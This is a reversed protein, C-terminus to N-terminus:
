NGSVKIKIENGAELGSVGGGTYKVTYEGTGISYKESLNFVTTVSDHPPVEIYSEPPPPMVRRAMAGMFMAENGQLDTVEMYKGLHPEFPTEWKCFRQVTDADNIVTFSVMVSDNKFVSASMGLRTKLKVSDHYKVERATSVSKGTQCGTTAVAALFVLVFSYRLM